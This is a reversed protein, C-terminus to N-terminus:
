GLVRVPAGRLFAAVSEVTEGYFTRYADETVYGLHPTLLVNDLRRLPHDAPLPEVDYVDLGAGAIRRERLAELLAAEEVLPGRSTNILFATRKMSALEAAGLVGRTRESLVLHLSVFDSTRLLEDKGLLRAGAAAARAETLNQSWAVVEMEFARGVAAVRSGLRGLGIVGLRKGKLDVGITSQWRGERMARDEVPIRRALGLILGWALEATPYGLAGTGSVTVGRERAAALDISANRPGTTVLLKLRPLREFLARTFPTRERMICVVEFGALRAALPELEALHDNFVVVEVDKPLVSWDAYSRAVNQWDDLVAVRTMQAGM